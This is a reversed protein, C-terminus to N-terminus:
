PNLKAIYTVFKESKWVGREKWRVELTVDKLGAGSAGPGIGTVTVQCEIGDGVDTWLGVAGSLDSAEGDTFTTHLYAYGQRKFEELKEQAHITGETLMSARRSAQFGVPFLSLIGVLGIALIALAIVIELLSFGTLFKDKLSLSRFKLNVKKGGNIELSTFGKLKRM